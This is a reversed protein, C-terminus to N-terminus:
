VRGRGALDDLLEELVVLERLELARVHVAGEEPRVRELLEGRELALVLEDAVDEPEEHGRHRVDDAPELRLARVEDARDLRDGLLFFCLGRGRDCGFVECWGKILPTANARRAAGLGGCS